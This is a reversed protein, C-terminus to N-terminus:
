GRSFWNTGDYSIFMVNSAAALTTSTNAGAGLNDGSAPFIQLTEAGANVIICLLGAEAAPLTVTDDTNACTTIINVQAALAMCGQSQVTSAVIAPAVTYKASM